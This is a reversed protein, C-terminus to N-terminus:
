GSSASPDTRDLQYYSALVNTILQKYSPALEAVIEIKENLLIAEHDLQVVPCDDSKLRNLDLCVRDYNGDEPQGIPLFLHATCIEFIPKDRFIAVQWCWYENGGYNDYHHLRSIEFDAFVYHCVFDTFCSPLRFPLREQAQDIWPASNIPGFNM